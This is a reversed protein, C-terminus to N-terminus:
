GNSREMKWKLTITNLSNEEIRKKQRLRLELELQRLIVAGVLSSSIANPWVRLAVGFRIKQLARAVSWFKPVRPPSKPLHWPSLQRSPAFGTLLPSRM